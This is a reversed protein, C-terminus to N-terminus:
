AHFIRRRIAAANAFIRIGVPCLSDVPRDPSEPANMDLHPPCGLRDCSVARTGFVDAAKETSTTSVRGDTLSWDRISKIAESLAASGM